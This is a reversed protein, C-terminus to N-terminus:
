SIVNCARSSTDYRYYEVQVHERVNLVEHKIEIYRIKMKGTSWIFLNEQVFVKKQTTSNEM